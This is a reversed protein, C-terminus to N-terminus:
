LVVLHVKLSSFGIHGLLLEYILSNDVISIYSLLLLTLAQVLQPEGEGVWPLTITHPGYDNISAPVSKDKIEKRGQGVGIQKRRVLRVWAIFHSRVGIRMWANFNLAKGLLSCTTIATLVHKSWRRLLSLSPELLSCTLDPEEPASTGKTSFAIISYGWCGRM